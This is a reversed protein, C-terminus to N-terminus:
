AHEDIANTLLARVGNALDDVIIRDRGDSVFIGKLHYIATYRYNM